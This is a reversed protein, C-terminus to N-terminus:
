NRVRKGDKRERGEEIKMRWQGKWRKGTGKDKKEVKPIIM